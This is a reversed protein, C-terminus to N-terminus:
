STSDTILGLNAMAAVLSQLAANGGHAGTVTPKSIATAGFFGLTGSAGVNIRATGDTQIILDRATGGGSGKVTGIRCTNATTQWDVTFSELSTASTYTNTVSLRQANTSRAHAWHDAAIRQSITDDSAGMSYWGGRNYVYSCLLNGSFQVSNAYGQLTGNFDIHWRAVGGTAFYLNDSAAGYIGTNADGFTVSPSAASGVGFAASSLAGASLTIGTMENVVGANDYLVRGSTGSTITTTGITLGGGSWEVDTAGANVALVKGANSTLSPLLAVRAGAATTSGTGGYSVGIASGNWTGASITGLTTLNSSGAWTSLATNEVNSMDRADYGGLGNTFIMYGPPDGARTLLDATSLTYPTYDVLPELDLQSRMAAYDAAGLLSQVNASPTISAYTALNADYAQVSSGIDDTTVLTKSTPITTSNISTATAAGLSPTILSPSTGFVLAGSGTEDSIVGALQASTTSAFQSLPDTTLADGSGSATSNITISDTGADTTITVNTGAVLTLTDTTSDAVVNSQGSVAITQFLNQDGTNTGSSSGSGSPYLTDFYSKLTAKIHAWSLKKLINSAASDILPMTDADVPTTKAAAGNIASAVNTADTVDASAEIGSLKSAETTTYGQYGSAYSVALTGSSTIPTGSVAFGTPVTMAVSTVTGAATGTEAFTIRGKSDVTINANDYSGPTVATNALTVAAAGPGSATADGTLSTIYNGADQKGDFTQWDASTLAGTTSSSAAALSLEQDTLSLGNATGITVDGSNTGSLVGSEGDPITIGSNQIVDGGTGNFRVIQNDLSTSSSTVDGTGSVPTTVSVTVEGDVTVDVTPGAATSVSVSM